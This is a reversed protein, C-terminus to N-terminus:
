SGTTAPLKFPLAPAPTALPKFSPSLLELRAPKTRQEALAAVLSPAPDQAAAYPEMVVIINTVAEGAALVIQPNDNPGTYQGFPEGDDVEGNKDLDQWAAAVYTGAELSGIAFPVTSSTVEVEVLNSRNNDFSNCGPACYLAAVYTTVSGTPPPAPPPPTSTGSGSLAAAADVLGAGCDSGSPRECQSASLPTAADRLRSLVEDFTLGPEKALMLAVIGAVHPSAMSTGQYFAYAPELGNPGEQAVTSLVGAPNTEGNVTFSQSVDGGAAMVDVDGGYNSYPARTNQPGTAGVTIVGDCSGPFDTATDANSNGAAAVVVVGSDALSQFFANVDALDPSNACSEGIDSGLSLNIVRAANNNSPVGTVGQGAAWAIGSLIDALTGGGTVGLVRVPVVKAGWSVGAVGSGNNTTAAVTGAVHSGHYASDGGEDSPNSDRGDGDGASAPDSVFDYGPLLNSALDPHNFIGSDVVSVTVSQSSGDEIDWAAPLNMADYHWQFPYSEDSPTKYSYLVYNPIASAVDARARLAAVLALTESQNMQVLGEARYLHLRSGGVLGRVARLEAGGVSLPALSQASPGDKFRVLVEGPVVELPERAHLDNSKQIIRMDKPFTRLELGLGKREIASGPNASGPYILMGAISGNGNDVGGGGDDNIVGLQVDVGTQPPTIVYCGSADGYCGAYDGADGFSGNGNVDKGAFVAYQGAALGSFNYSASSGSQTITVVQTNPSSEDCQNNAVFCAEVVAGRVDGGQPATLTGSIGNGGGDGNDSVVLQVNVGTQPPSVAVCNQGDNYCGAYDGNDGFSGNGTIDKAAFVAYQGAALNPFSYSASGGSQMVTMQQTNPSSEDCQNGIVFCAEVTTGQVDGGQPASITGSIGNGGGGGGEPGGGCAALVFLCTLSLLRLGFRKM